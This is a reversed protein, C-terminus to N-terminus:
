GGPEGRASLRQKLRGASLGATGARAREEERKEKKGGQRELSLEARGRLAPRPPLLPAHRPHSVVLDHTFYISFFPLYIVLVSGVEECLALRCARGAATDVRAGPWGKKAKLCGYAGKERTELLSVRLLSFKQKWLGDLTNKLLLPPAPLSALHPLTGRQGQSAADQCCKPGSRGASARCLFPGM